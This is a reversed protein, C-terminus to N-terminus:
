KEIQKENIVMDLLKDIEAISVRGRSQGPWLSRRM